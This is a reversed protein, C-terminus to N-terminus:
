RNVEEFPEYVFDAVYEKVEPLAALGDAFQIFETKSLNKIVPLVYELHAAKFCLMHTRVDRQRKAESKIKNEMRVVKHEVQQLKLKANELEEKSKQLERKLEERSKQKAMKKEERKLFQYSFLVKFKKM